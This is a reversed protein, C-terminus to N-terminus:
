PDPCEVRSIAPRNVNHIRAISGITSSPSIRAGPKVVIAPVRHWGKWANGTGTIKFISLDNANQVCTGIPYKPFYKPLQEYILISVVGFLFIGFAVKLVTFLKKL